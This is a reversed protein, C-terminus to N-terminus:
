LKQFKRSIKKRLSRRFNSFPIFKLLLLQMKFKRNRKSQYKMYFRDFSKLDKAKLFYHFLVGLKTKEKSNLYPLVNEYMFARILEFLQIRQADDFPMRIYRLEFPEHEIFLALHLAHSKNLNYKKYFDKLLTLWQPIQSLVKSTNQNIVIHNQFDHKRYHYKGDPYLSVKNTLALLQHSFLGDECPQISIPFRIDVHKKLFDTKLFMACTPLAMIHHSLFFYDEGIGVIDSQNNLAIELAEELFEDAITDDGDLFFVYSGSAELLGRNRAVSVGSNIQEIYRLNDYEGIYKSCIDISRDTSGDNVLILEIFPYNQNLVSQIAEELFLEQNYIPIVVSILIKDSQM